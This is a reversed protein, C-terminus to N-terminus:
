LETAVIGGPQGERLDNAQDDAFVAQGDSRDKSCRIATM